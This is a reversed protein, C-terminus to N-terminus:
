PVYSPTEDESNKHEPQDEGFLQQCYDYSDIEAENLCRRSKKNCSGVCVTLATTLMVSVDRPRTVGEESVNVGPFQFTECVTTRLVASSANMLTSDESYKTSSTKALASERNSPIRGLILTLRLGLKWSELPQRAIASLRKSPIRRLQLICTIM